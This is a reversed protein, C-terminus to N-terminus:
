NKCIVRYNIMEVKGGAKICDLQFDQKTKTELSVAYSISVVLLAIISAIGLIIKVVDFM